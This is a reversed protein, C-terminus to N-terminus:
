QSSGTNLKRQFASCAPEAHITARRGDLGIQESTLYKQHLTGRNCQIRSRGFGRGPPSLTENDDTCLWGGRAEPNGARSHMLQPPSLAVQLSVPSVSHFLPFTFALPSFEFGCTCDRVENFSFATSFNKLNTESGLVLAFLAQVKLLM